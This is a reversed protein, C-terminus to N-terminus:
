GSRAVRGASGVTVVGGAVGFGARNVENVGCDGGCPNWSCCNAHPRLRDATDPPDLHSLLFAVACEQAESPGSVNGSSCGGFCGHMVIGIARCNCRLAHAGNTDNWYQNGSSSACVFIRGQRTVAFDYHGGSFNCFQNTEITHNNAGGTHHLVVHNSRSASSYHSV